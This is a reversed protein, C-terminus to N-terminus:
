AQRYGQRRKVVLMRGIMVTCFGFIFVSAIGVLWNDPDVALIFIGSVVLLASCVELSWLAFKSHGIAQGAIAEKVTLREDTRDLHRCQAYVWLAYPVILFPLLILSALPGMFPVSGIIVMLSVMLYTRVGKRLKEFDKESPIVYGLSLTGLPFFLKRGDDTTKFSSNALADFYKM